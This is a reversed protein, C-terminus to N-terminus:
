DRPLKSHKYMLSSLFAFSERATEVANHGHRSLEVHLGGSYEVDYLAKIIPNFEISGEGFALHDHVGPNMDEIHINVIHEQFRQIFGVIPLEGLCFLHGIDMTLKLFDSEVWRCLREFSGTTDIFMGPEPEFGIPIGHEGACDLVPRLSESLRDLSTQSDCFDDASGSWLSVCDSGLKDAIGICRKLFDIRIERRSEEISLLTPQHKHRPDLLFRAGTEIVSSMSWADLKEQVAEIEQDLSDSFPNLWQHDITIALSKFGTEGLIDIADLPNHFPFGNTNYGLIM